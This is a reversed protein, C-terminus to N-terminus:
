GNGVSLVRPISFVSNGHLMRDRQRIIWISNWQKGPPEPFMVVILRKMDLLRNCLSSKGVNPRGIFAIRTRLSDPAGSPLVPSTFAQFLATLKEVGYGHEASLGVQASFGLRQFDEFAYSDEPDDMKNVVLVPQKGMKRFKQALTQDLPLLGARGDVVFLLLDAAQIAFQAQDETADQIEAPTMEPLMGIGGTDMLVYGEPSDAVVVDRTVGPRDHVISIRKGALRNFLRSKGVNPRGVIAISPNM